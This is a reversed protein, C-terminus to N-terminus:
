TLFYQTRMKCLLLCVISDWALGVCLSRLWSTDCCDPSDRPIASNHGLGAGLPHGAQGQRHASLSAEPNETNGWPITQCILISPCCVPHGCGACPLSLDCTGATVWPCSRKMSESWLSHTYLVWELTFKCLLTQETYVAKVAGANEVQLM